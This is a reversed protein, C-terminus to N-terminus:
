FRKFRVLSQQKGPRNGIVRQERNDREQDQHHDRQRVHDVLFDQEGRQAAREFEHHRAFALCNDNLQPCKKGVAVDNAPHQENRHQKEALEAELDKLVRDRHNKQVADGHAAPM